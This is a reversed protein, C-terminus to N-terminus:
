WLQCDPFLRGPPHHCRLPRTFLQFHDLPELPVLLGPHAHSSLDSAITSWSASCTCGRVRLRPLSSASNSKSSSLILPRVVWAWWGSLSSSMAVSSAVSATILSCWYRPHTYSVVPSPKLASSSVAHANLLRPLSVSTSAPRPALTLRLSVVVRTAAAM